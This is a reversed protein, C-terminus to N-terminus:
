WSKPKSNVTEVTSPNNIILNMRRLIKLLFSFSQARVSELEGADYLAKNEEFWAHEKSSPYPLSENETIYKAFRELREDWTIREKKVHLHGYTKDIRELEALEELSLTGKKQKSKAVSYFRSLRVEEDEVGATFPFRDNAKIFQELRDISDKFSRRGQRKEQLIYEEGYNINTFGIYLINSKYYLGFRNNAEALLNAKVSSEKVEERFTTIYDCIDTLPAIPQFLSNLYEVALDRITGGRKETNDWEALTYTSSRSVAVINSNRLANAGIKSSVQDLDPYRKNLEDCIEESSMPRSYERLIDEILNPITKRANAPFYIQSNIINDPYGKQLIQRCEKVIAYFDEDPIEKQLLGRVFTELDDRYSFIRKEKLMNEVSVLFQDFKFHKALRMPVLYLRSTSATTQFMAKRADGLLTLDPDIRPICITIYENSFDVEEEARIRNFDYESQVEYNYGDLLGMDKFSQPCKGLLDFCDERLQRVRERSLDLSKAVVNLDEVPTGNFTKLSRRIIKKQRDNTRNDILCSLMTFVPYHCCKRAIRVIKEVQENSLKLQLLRSVFAMESPSIDGNVYTDIDKLLATFVELLAESAKHNLGQFKVTEKSLGVVTMYFDVMSGHCSEMFKQYSHYIRVHESQLRRDIIPTALATKESNFFIARTGTHSVIRRMMESLRVVEKAFSESIGMERRVNTIDMHFIKDFFESESVSHNRLVSLLIASNPFKPTVIKDYVYSLFRIENDDLNMNQKSQQQSPAIIEKEQTEIEEPEPESAPEQESKTILNEVLPAYTPLPLEPNAYSELAEKIVGIFNTIKSYMIKSAEPGLGDYKPTESNTILYRYYLVKLSRLCKDTWYQDFVNKFRTDVTTMSKSLQDSLAAIDEQHIFILYATNDNVVQKYNDLFCKTSVAMLKGKRFAMDLLMDTDNILRYFFIIDNNCLKRERALFGSTRYNAMRILSTYVDKQFSYDEARDM